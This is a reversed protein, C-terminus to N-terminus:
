YKGIMKVEPEMEIGFKKYVTDRVIGILDKIDRSTANNKNIIFNTHLDSVCAGGVMMGKLGADNILKWSSHGEPNKFVSGASPYEMPHKSKRDAIVEDIRKQTGDRDDTRDLIFRAGTIINGGGINMNRYSSQAKDITISRLEGSADVVDIDRVIGSFSGMYTGANMMIGGGICGPIGAMFEVGGFGAGVAFAIFNEKTAMADAYLAGGEIVSMVASKGGNECIRLVIGDIGSDGVLLNSGGGIVTFPVKSDAAIKVIPAVARIDAPIVLADAPGGTHFTTYNKLPEHEKVLGWESLARIVPRPINM